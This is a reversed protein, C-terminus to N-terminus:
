AFAPSFASAASSARGAAAGRRGRGADDDGALVDAEIRQAVAECGTRSPPRTAPTASASPKAAIYQHSKM